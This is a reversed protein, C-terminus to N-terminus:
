KYEEEDDKNDHMSSLHVREYLSFKRAIGKVAFYVAPSLIV